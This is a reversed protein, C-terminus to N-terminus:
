RHTVHHGHFKKDEDDGNEVRNEKKESRKFRTRCLITLEHLSSACPWETEKQQVGAEKRKGLLIQRLRDTSAKSSPIM